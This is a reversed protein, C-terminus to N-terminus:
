LDGTPRFSPDYVLGYRRSVADFVRTAFTCVTAQRRDSDRSALDYLLRAIGNRRFAHKVYIWHLIMSDRDAFVVYGYLHNLDEPDCAVAIRSSRLAADVFNKYLRYYPENAMRQVEESNRYSRLWSSFIFSIDDATPTRVVVLVGSQTELSISKM